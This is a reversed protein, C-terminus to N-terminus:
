YRRQSEPVYWKTLNYFIESGNEHIGHIRKNVVTIDETFFLFTVPQDAYLLRQFKHYIEARESPDITRRALELLKDTEPNNYSFFNYGVKKKGTDPIQSSHWLMFPDPDISLDWGLIIADFKKSLGKDLLVSWEDFQLNVKVGVAEWADKLVKAVLQRIANGHTAVLDFEFKKGGNELVGDKDTDVWGAAKLLKRAEDQSFAMVEMSKDYDDSTILFSGNCEKGYGQLVDSIIGQRNVAMTLARRVNRDAFLPNLLNYEVFLFMRNLSKYVNFNEKFAPTDGQKVLQDPNLRLLDVEGKLLSLFSMSADPIIRYTYGDLCPRGNFYKRNSELVIQEHQDWKVFKFPGTGVLPPEKKMDSIGDEQFIKRPVIFCRWASLAYAFPERYTVKVRYKDLIEVSQVPEFYPKFFSESSDKMIMQYTFLVDDATFESNDHWLVNKRLYFLITQGDPSFEWREALDPLLEFNENERVLGNFIKSLIGISYGENYALPNLLPPNVGMTEVLMDGYVQGNDVRQNAVNSSTATGVNKPGPQGCGCLLINILFVSILSKM